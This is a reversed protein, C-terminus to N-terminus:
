SSQSYLKIAYSAVATNWAKLISKYKLEFSELAGMISLDFTTMAWPSYM